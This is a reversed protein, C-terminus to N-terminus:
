IGVAVPPRPREPVRKAQAPGAKARAQEHMEGKYQSFAQRARVSSFFFLPSLIGVTEIKWWRALCGLTAKEMM